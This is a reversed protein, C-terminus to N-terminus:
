KTHAPCVNIFDCRTCQWGTKAPFMQANKHNEIGQALRGAKQIANRADEPNLTTKVTKHHSLYHWQLEIENLPQYHHAAMAGYLSAQFNKSLTKTSLTKSGTKYDHLVIKNEMPQSVRDVFGILWQKKQPFLPYLLKQEVAITNGKDKEFIESFYWQINEVSKQLFPALEEEAVPTFSDALMEKWISPLLALSKEETITKKELAQQHVWELVSHVVSGTSMHLDIIKEEKPLPTKWVYKHAYAQPCAEFLSLSSYSYPSPMRHHISSDGIITQNADRRTFNEM